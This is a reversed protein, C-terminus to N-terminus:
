RLSEVRGANMVLTKGISSGSDDVPNHRHSICIVTAQASYCCIASQLVAETEADLHATAEDICLIKCHRFAFHIM